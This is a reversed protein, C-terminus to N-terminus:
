FLSLVNDSGGGGEGGDKLRHVFCKKLTFKKENILYIKFEADIRRNKEYGYAFSFIIFTENILM